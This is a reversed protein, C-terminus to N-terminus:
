KVPPALQQIWNRIADLGAASFVPSPQGDILPWETPSGQFLHNIGELRRTQVQRNNKLGKELLPLNENASIQLDNTGHLLLVPCQVAELERQPYFRLYSRAWTSTLWTAGAAYISDPLSPLNQRLAKAVAARAAQDDPNQRVLEVMARQKKQLADLRKKEDAKQRLRQQDLYIQIQAANAGDARMKEVQQQTATQNQQYQRALTQLASDAMAAPFGLAPQSALVESGSLGAAALAVVFAPPNPRAAALLAVNGGEGHGILGLHQTDLLPQTRMYDLAAQADHVRDDPSAAADQGGSKEVGRDHFRLVAIGRRTLYDALGGLLKYNGVQGDQNQPGWDSLLAVAPFPGQGAPITLTGSLSLKDVLNPVVVEEVRYPPPFRFTKPPSPPPAVFALTLSAKFGPQTWVGVLQKGDASRQGKFQCGVQEAYFIVTDGNQAVATPIRDIRQLPVNLVAFRNGSALETVIFQIPLSGGPVTLPGKWEGELSYKNIAQAQAVGPLVLWCALLWLQWWARLGTQFQQFVLGFSLGSTRTFAGSIM